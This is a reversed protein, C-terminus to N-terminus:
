DDLLVYIDDSDYLNRGVGNPGFSGVVVRDVGNVRYDPDFFYPNGWPDMINGAFYPGKWEDYTGDTGELGAAAISINWIETSGPQTRLAKNPWRSTDWALQLTATALMQLDGEAQRIYAKTRATRLAYTAMVTLLGLIGITVMIELLTFGHRNKM